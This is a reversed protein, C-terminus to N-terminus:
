CPLLWQEECLFCAWPMGSNMKTVVSACGTFKVADETVAPCTLSAMM